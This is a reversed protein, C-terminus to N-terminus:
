RVRAVAMLGILGGLLLLAWSGLLPAPVPVPDIVAEVALSVTAFDTNGLYSASITHSGVGLTNITITATSSTTGAAVLSASGILTTGDYFNVTGTPPDGAVTATLTVTGGVVSPNPTATLMLVPTEPDVSLSFSASTSAGNGDTVTITYSAAASVATPTGSITGTATNLTLGVPLTPVIGYTLAGTGGGGTVPIFSSATGYTLSESAIAITATVAKNVTLSFTNSAMAGNVDTVMVTYSTAVSTVTPTGTIAGTSSSMSLGTPLAPSVSYSLPATGGGGTVPKFGTVSHNQTLAISAISQTATVAPNVAETLTSSTSTAFNSDGNFMAVMSHSGVPLTTTCTAVGSSVAAAGCGSITSGDSTFAVTSESVTSTSTVTATFTETQPSTAPNLSSSVTTTTAAAQDITISLVFPQTPTGSSTPDLYLTISDTTESTTALQISYYTNLSGSGGPGCGGSGPGGSIVFNCALFNFTVSVGNTTTTTFNAFSGTESNNTPYFGLDYPDCTNGDGDTNGGGRNFDRDTSCGSQYLHSSQPHRVRELQLGSCQEM